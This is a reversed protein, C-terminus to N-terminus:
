SFFRLDSHWSKPMAEVLRSRHPERNLASRQHGCHGPRARKVRHRLLERAPVAPGWAPLEPRRALPLTLGALGLSVTQHECTITAVVGAGWHVLFLPTETRSGGGARGLSGLNPSGPLGM